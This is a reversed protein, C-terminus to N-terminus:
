FNTGVNFSVFDMKIGLDIFFLLRTKLSLKISLGCGISLNPFLRDFKRKKESEGPFIIPKEKGKTYDVGATILTFSGTRDENKFSKIQVYLGTIFYDKNAKYQFNATIEKTSKNFQKFKGFGFSGGYTAGSSINLNYINFDQKDQIVKEDCSLSFAFIIVFVILILKKL